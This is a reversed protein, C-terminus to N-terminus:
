IKFCRKCPINISTPILGTTEIEIFERVDILLIEPHNPLDKIEEYYVVEQARAAVFILFFILANKM